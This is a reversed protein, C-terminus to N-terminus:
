YLQLSSVNAGRYSNLDAWIKKLFDGRYTRSRKGRKLTKWDTSMAPGLGVISVDIAKVARSETPFPM